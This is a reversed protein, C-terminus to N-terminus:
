RRILYLLDKLLKRGKYCVGNVKDVEKVAEKFGGSLAAGFVQVLATKHEPKMDVKEIEACIRQFLWYNDNVSM